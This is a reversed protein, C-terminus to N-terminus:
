TGPRSRIKVLAEIGDLVRELGFTFEYDPEDPEEFMGTALVEQLEPFRGNGTLEAMIRGWNAALQEGPELATEAAMLDAALTAESRVFGTVLLISSLKEGATLGTDRLCRLGVELWTIANPTVPPGKIPIRVVWPHRRLSDHEAWAWRSLGDRWTEGPQPPAPPATYAADVMLQLLEDKAAVYRYLSMTSVGLDAAVRSMSVAALGDSTAVQIGARVIRELSLGPRPGKTPRERRGWAAEISAPLGTGDEDM